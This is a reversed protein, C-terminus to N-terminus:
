LIVVIVMSLYIYIYIILVERFLHLADVRVEYKGYSIRVGLSRYPFASPGGHFSCLRSLCRMPTKTDRFLASLTYSSPLMVNTALSEAISLTAPNTMGDIGIELRAVTSTSVHDTLARTDMM